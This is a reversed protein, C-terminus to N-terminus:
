TRKWLTPWTSGGHIKSAWCLCVLCLSQIAVTTEEGCLSHSSSAFPDCDDVVGNSSVFGVNINVGFHLKNTKHPAALHPHFLCFLKESLAVVHLSNVHTM